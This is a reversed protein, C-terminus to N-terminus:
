SDDGSLGTERPDAPVDQLAKVADLAACLDTYYDEQGGYEPYGTSPDINARGMFKDHFRQLASEAIELDDVGEAGAARQNWAAQWARWCINVETEDSSNFWKEFAERCESTPATMHTGKAM